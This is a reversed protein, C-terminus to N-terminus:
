MGRSEPHSAALRGARRQEIEYLRDALSWEELRDAMTETGPSAARRQRIEALRATLAEEDPYADALRRASRVAARQAAELTTERGADCRELANLDDPLPLAVPQPAPLPRVGGPWGPWARPDSVSWSYFDELLSAPGQGWLVAWEVREVKLNLRSERATWTGTVLRPLFGGSSEAGPDDAHEWEVTTWAPRRRRATVGAFTAGPGRGRRGSPRNGTPGRHDSRKADVRESATPGADAM